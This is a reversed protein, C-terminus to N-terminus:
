PRCPVSAPTRSPARRGWSEPARRSRAAARRRPWPPRQQPDAGRASVATSSARRSAASRLPRRDRRRVGDRLPAIVQPLGVAEGTVIAALRRDVLVRQRELLEAIRHHEEVSRLAVAADALVLLRDGVVARKELRDGAAGLRAPSRPWSRRRQAAGAAGRSALRRRDAAAREGTRVAPSGVGVAGGGTRGIAAGDGYRDASRGGSASSRREGSRGRRRRPSAPGSPARPTPGTRAAFAM